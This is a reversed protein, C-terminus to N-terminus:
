ILKKETVLTKMSLELTNLKQLLDAIAQENGGTKKLEDIQGKVQKIQKELMIAEDPVEVYKEGKAKKFSETVKRMEWYGEPDGAAVVKSIALLYYAENEDYGIDQLLGAAQAVTLVNNKAGKLIEAKTLDKELSLRDIRLESVIKYTLTDAAEEQMGLGTFRRRMEDTSIAGKRYLERVVPYDQTVLTYITLMGAQASDYGEALFNDYLDTEDFMALMYMNAAVASSFAKPQPTVEPEITFLQALAAASDQSYGINILMLKMQEKTIWHLSYFSRIQAVTLNRYKPAVSVEKQKEIDVKAKEIAVDIRDQTWDLDKLCLRTWAEDRIGYKFASLAESSNVIRGEVDMTPKKLRERYLEAREVWLEIAAAPTNLSELESRLVDEEIREMGYAYMLETRVSNREGETRYAVLSVAAKKADEPSLGGMRRYKEIDDETYIGVDWGYGLERVNPPGYAVNIIDQRDDPHVDVIKLMRALKDVTWLGRHYNAFMLNVPIRDWHAYWYWESAQETLGMKKAIDVMTPYQVESSHDGYAERVAFRILDQIPPIVDKLADVAPLVSDPYANHNLWRHFTTLDIEGRRLLALGIEVSPYVRQSETWVDAWWDELGFYAFNKKALDLPILAKAAFDALRYPEPYNVWLHSLSETLVDSFRFRKLEAYLTNYDIMGRRRLDLLSGLPSPSTWAENLAPLFTTDWGNQALYALFEDDSLQGLRNMYWATEADPINPRITSNVWRSIFPNIGAQQIVGEYGSLLADTGSLLGYLSSHMGGVGQGIGAKLADVMFKYDVDLDDEITVPVDGIAGDRLNAAINMKYGLYGKIQPKLSDLSAGTAAMLIASVISGAAQGVNTVLAMPVQAALAKAESYKMVEYYPEPM